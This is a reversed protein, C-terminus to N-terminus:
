WVPLLSGTALWSKRPNQITSMQWSHRLCLDAGWLLCVACRFCRKWQGGPFGLPRSWPTLLVCQGVQPSHVQSTGPQRFQKSWPLACFVLGDSDTGKRLVWSGSDSHSLGPFHVCGLAWKLCNEQLAVQLKLLTSQSLVCATLLPLCLTASVSHASGVCVLSIQKCPEGQGGCCLQVLSALYSVM